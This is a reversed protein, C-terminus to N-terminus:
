QEHWLGDKYVRDPEALPRPLVTLWLDDTQDILRDEGKPVLPASAYRVIPLSIDGSAVRVRIPVNAPKADAKASLTITVDGGTGPIPTTTWTVGEPLGDLIVGMPAEFGGFSTILVKMPATRGPVVRFTHANVRAYFDFQWRGDPDATGQGPSPHLVELRYVHHDGGRGSLDGVVLTFAGDAPATWHWQRNAPGSTKEAVQKGTEDEIHMTGQLPLGLRIKPFRFVLKQDKAARFAFRDVDGATGIRGSVAVPVDIPQALHPPDNPEVELLQPADDVEVPVRNEIVPPGISLRQVGPALETADLEHRLLRAALGLNWGHLIVATKQGRQVGLPFAYRGFAGTTLTLRYVADDSGLYAVPQFGPSGNPPWAFGAVQVIYKGTKQVRYALLPDVNRDDHNTALVRDEEDRLTLVGDVPSGISYAHLRAVLWRGAEVHVAYSDADGDMTKRGFEDHYPPRRLRGNITVPLSEIPTTTQEHSDPASETIEPHRGVVFMRPASAGHPTYLRILHAGIPADEAIQVNFQGSAQGPTIKLGTCDTWVSVPWPELKAIREYEPGSRITAVTQTVTTVTTGRQGGAPFLHNVIPQGAAHAATVVAFVACFSLSAILVGVPKPRSCRRRAADAQM